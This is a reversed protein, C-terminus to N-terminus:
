ESFSYLFGTRHQRPMSDMTKYDLEFNLHYM